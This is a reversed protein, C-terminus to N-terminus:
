LPKNKLPSRTKLQERISELEKESPFYYWIGNEIRGDGEEFHLQEINNLAPKYYKAFQKIEDFTINTESHERLMDTYIASAM